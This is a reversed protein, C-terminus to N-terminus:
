AWGLALALRIDKQQHKLPFATPFKGGMIGAGKLKFMPNAMAGAALVELLDEQQLGSAEALSMGECFAGQPPPPHTVKFAHDRM